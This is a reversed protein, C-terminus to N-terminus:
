YEYDPHTLLERKNFAAPLDFGVLVLEYINDQLSDMDVTLEVGTDDQYNIIETAVQFRVDDLDSCNELFDYRVKYPTLGGVFTDVWETQEKEMIYDYITQTLNPKM